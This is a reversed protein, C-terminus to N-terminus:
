PSRRTPPAVPHPGALLRDAFSAADDLLGRDDLYQELQALRRAVPVGSRDLRDREHLLEVHVPWAPDCAAGYWALNRYRREVVRLQEATATRTSGDHEVQRRGM